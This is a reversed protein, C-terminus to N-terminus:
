ACAAGACRCSSPHRVRSSCCCPGVPQPGPRPAPTLPVHKQDMATCWGYFNHHLAREPDCDMSLLHALLPIPAWQECAKILLLPKPTLQRELNALPLTACVSVSATHTHTDRVSCTGCASASAASPRTADHV